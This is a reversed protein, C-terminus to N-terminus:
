GMKGAPKLYQKFSSRYQRHALSGERGRLLRRGRGVGIQGRGEKGGVPDGSGGNGADEGLGIGFPM